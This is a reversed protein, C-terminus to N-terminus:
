KKIMTISTKVKLKKKLFKAKEGDITFPENSHNEIEIESVDKIIVCKRKEVAHVGFLFLKVFTFFARPGKTKKIMVLKIKGDSLKDNQNLRVGGAYNGNLLMVYIYKGHERVKDYTVTLPLAKLKFASKLAALFYAFRGFKRKANGSAVYSANTMYGTAMSYAIYENDEFLLDYKTTNLRLICDVSKDVDIPIELSHAVDNCTGFPLIGVMPYAGSRMIGNVVNHLTGDGGCSIIVDYKSAFKEALEQSMEQSNSSISDVQTYRLSLRQKIHPLFDEIKGKLANPNYIILATLSSKM